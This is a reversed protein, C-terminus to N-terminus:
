RPLRRRSWLLLLGGGLTLAITSPEPAVTNVLITDSGIQNNGSFVTLVFQYTDVANVNYDAALTGAGFGGFLPNESNQAGTTGSHADDGILLPNFSLTQGTVVDTIMLTATINSLTYASGVGGPSLNISFDYNWASHTASGSAFGTPVLYDDTPSDIVSNNIQDLKARLAVEIGNESDVTFGGNPNGTGYYVGPSALNADFALTAQACPAIMTLAIIGAFGTVRNSTMLHNTRSIKKRGLRIPLVPLLPVSMASTVPAGVVTTQRTGGFFQKTPNERPSLLIV